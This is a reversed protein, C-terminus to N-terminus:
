NCGSSKFIFTSFRFFTYVFPQQAFGRTATSPRDKPRSAPWHKARSPTLPAPFDVVNLVNVPSISGVLPEIWM